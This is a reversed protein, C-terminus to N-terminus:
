RNGTTSFQLKVLEVAPFAAASWVFARLLAPTLGKFYLLAGEDRYIKLFCDVMGKYQRQGHEGDMQIRAKVFEFPYSALWSCVGALGGAVFSPFLDSRPFVFRKLQLRTNEYTMFYVGYGIVDSWITVTMGRYYGAFGESRYINKIVALPGRNTKGNSHDGASFVKSRRETKEGIGQHQVRIKILDMPCCVISQAFGAIMGSICPSIVPYATPPLCDEIFGKQVNGEVGFVILSIIGQGVLPSTM